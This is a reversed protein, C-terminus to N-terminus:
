FRRYELHQISAHEHSCGSSMAGAPLRCHLCSSEYGRQAIVAQAREILWPNNTVVSGGILILEPAYLHLMNVLGLGLLEAEREM